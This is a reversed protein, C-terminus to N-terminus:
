RASRGLAQEAVTGGQLKSAARGSGAGRPGVWPTLYPMPFTVASMSLDPVRRCDPCLVAWRALEPVRLVVTCLGGRRGAVRADCDQHPCPIASLHHEGAASSRLVTAPYAPARNGSGVHYPRCFGHVDRERLALAAAAEALTVGDPRARVLEALSRRQFHTDAAWYSVWSFGEGLYTEEIHRRYAAPLRAAVTTAEEPVLAAWIAHRVEVVPCDVLASRLGKSRVRVPLALQRPLGQTGGLWCLVKRRLEAEDWGVSAAAQALSVGAEATLWVKAAAQYTEPSVASGRQRNPVHGSLPHSAVRGDALPVHVEVAWEVTLGGNVLRARQNRLLAGCAAHLQWPAQGDYALLGAAVAALTGFDAMLMEERASARVEEARQEAAEASALLAEHQRRLLPEADYQGLAASHRGQAELRRALAPIAELESRVTDAERRLRAAEARHEAGADERQPRRPTQLAVAQEGLQQALSSLAQGLAQHHDRSRWAAVVCNPLRNWAPGNVPRRGLEYQHDRRGIVAYEFEGEVWPDAGVLPKKDRHHAAAGRPARTQEREYREEIRQWTERPVGWPTPEGDPGPLMVLGWDLTKEFFGKEAKSRQKPTMAQLEELTYRTPSGHAGYVARGQVKGHWRVTRLGTTFLEHNRVFLRRVSMGPWALEALTRQTGDRVDAGHRALVGLRGAERGIDEWTSGDAILRALQQMVPAADPAPEVKKRDVQVWSREGESLHRRAFRHTFPVGQEGRPYLGRELDDLEGKGSAEHFERTRQEEMGGEVSDLLTDDLPHPRGKIFLQWGYRDLANKLALRNRRLRALRSGFAFHASAGPRSRILKLLVETYANRGDDLYDGPINDEFASHLVVLFVTGGALVAWGVRGSIGPEVDGMTLSVARPVNRGVGGQRRDELLQAILPRAAMVDPDAADLHALTEEVIDAINAGRDGKDSWRAVVLRKWSMDAALAALNLHSLQDPTASM